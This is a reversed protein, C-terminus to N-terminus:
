IKLLNEYEGFCRKIKEIIEQYKDIYYMKGIEFLDKEIINKGKGNILTNHEGNIGNSYTLDYAPSLSWENKNNMLFSFNKSHDDKNNCSYTLIM